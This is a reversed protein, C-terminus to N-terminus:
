KVVDKFGKRLLFTRNIKRTFFPIVFWALGLSGVFLIMWLFFWSWNGRVAFYVGGFLFAWLPCLISGDDTKYENVPNIYYRKM